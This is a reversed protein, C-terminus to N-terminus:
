GKNNIKDYLVTEINTEKNVKTLRLITYPKEQGGTLNVCDVFASHINLRIPESKPDNFNTQYLFFYFNEGECRNTPIVLLYKANINTARHKGDPTIIRSKKINWKYIKGIGSNDLIEEYNQLAIIRDYIRYESKTLNNYTKPQLEYLKESHKITDFTIENSIIKDFVREKRYRKGKIDQFERIDDLHELGFIHVFDSKENSVISVICNRKSNGLKYTYDINLTNKFSEACKKLLSM